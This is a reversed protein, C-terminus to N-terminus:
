MVSFPNAGLGKSNEEIQKSRRNAENQQRILNSMFGPEKAERATAAKTWTNRIDAQGARGLERGTLPDLMLVIRKDAQYRLEMREVPINFKKSRDKMTADLVDKGWQVSAPDNPNVQLISNHVPFGNVRSHQSDFAEKAKAVSQEVGIGTQLFDGTLINLSQAEYGTTLYKAAELQRTKADNLRKVEDKPLKAFAVQSRAISELDRNLMSAVTFQSAYPRDQASVAGIFGAPDSQYLSQMNVVSQPLEAEGGAKLRTLYDNWDASAKSAASQLAKAAYGTPRLMALKMATQAKLGPDTVGQLLLQEAEVAEGEDKLGLGDATPNTLFTSGSLNDYLAQVAGSLRGKKEAELAAQQEAQARAYESRKTAEEIGRNFQVVEDTTFGNSRVLAEDRALQLGTIDMTSVMQMISAGRQSVGVGDLRQQNNLAELVTLDFKSGGMADRVSVKAGGVEIQYDGLAKMKPTSGQVGKLHELINAADQLEAEPNRTLGQEKDTAFMRSVAETFQSDDMAQITTPNMWATHSTRKVTTAQTELYKNTVDSQLGSLASRRQTEGKAWGTEFAEDDDEIGAEFKFGERASNLATTRFEDLEQQSKFYGSKVKAEVDSDVQTSINFAMRNRLAAMAIPDNEFGTKNEKIEARAQEITRQQLWSEAEQNKRAKDAEKQAVFAGGFDALSSVFGSLAEAQTKGFQRDQQITAARYGSLSTGGTAKAGGTFQRWMMYASQASEAM